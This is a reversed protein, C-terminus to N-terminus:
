STPALHMKIMQERQEFNLLKETVTRMKDDYLLAYDHHSKRYDKAYIRIMATAIAYYCNLVGKKTTELNNAVDTLSEGSILAIFVAVEDRSLTLLIEGREALRNKEMVLEAIDSQLQIKEAKLEDTVTKFSRRIEACKINCITTQLKAQDKQLFAIHEDPIKKNM